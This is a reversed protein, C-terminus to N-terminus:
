VGGGGPRERWDGALPQDAMPLETEFWDFTGLSRFGTEQLAVRLSHETAPVMMGIEDLGAAMGYELAAHALAVRVASRAAALSEIWVGHYLLTQVESLEACGAIEDGSEAVLLTWGDREQLEIVNALAFSSGIRQACDTVDDGGQAHRITMGLAHWPRPLGDEPRFILLECRGTRHFGVRQFARGSGANETSVVARAQGALSAGYSAATRILRTALGRRTWDPHVALLDIEWCAGRLNHTLFSVIFGVVQGKGIALWARQDDGSLMARVQEATYPSENFTAGEVALLGEADRLSGDFARITVEGQMGTVIAAFLRM